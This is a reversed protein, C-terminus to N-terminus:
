KIKNVYYDHHLKSNLWNSIKTEGMHKGYIDYFVKSGNVKNITKKYILVKIFDKKGFFKRIKGPTCKIKYIIDNDISETEVIEYEM